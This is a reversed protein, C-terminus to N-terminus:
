SQHIFYSLETKSRERQSSINIGEGITFILPRRRRCRHLLLLALPDLLSQLRIARMEEVRGVNGARGREGFAM